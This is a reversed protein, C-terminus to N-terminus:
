GQVSKRGGEEKCMRGGGEEKCGRGGEKVRAREEERGEDKCM